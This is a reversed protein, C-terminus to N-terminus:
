QVLKEAGESITVIDVDGKNKMEAAIRVVKKLEEMNINFRGPHEDIRHFCVVMWMKKRIAIRLFTEFESSNKPTSCMIAYRDTDRANLHFRFIFPYDVANAYHHRVTFRGFPNRLGYPWSFSSARIDKELIIQKSLQLEKKVRSPLLMAIANHTVSHSGIEHGKQSIARIEDWNLYGPTGVFGAICYVSAKMESAALINLAEIQSRYADDFRFSLMAREFPAEPVLATYIMYM